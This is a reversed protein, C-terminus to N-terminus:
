KNQEWWEIADFSPCAKAVNPFDRHGQVKAGPYRKVMDRVLTRLSNFQAPTFNNEPKMNEDVGGILCIGVSVSNYGAVHAGISELPQRGTEIRGNRRIVFHYGIDAWGKDLHWQRIEKAGIDQTPKTAACHIAIYKTQKRITM